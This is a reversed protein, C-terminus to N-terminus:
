KEHAPDLIQSQWNSGNFTMILTRLDAGPPRIKIVTKRIYGSPNSVDVIIESAIGEDIMWKLALGAINRQNNLSDITIPENKFKEYDYIYKEAPTDYLINSPYDPNTSLSFIVANEFGQDMIPQGGIYTIEAGNETIIVRPDGQTKDTM